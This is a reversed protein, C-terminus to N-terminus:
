VNDLEAHLLHIRIAENWTDKWGILMRVGGCVPFIRELGKGQERWRGESNAICMLFGATHANCEMYGHMIGISIKIWGPLM